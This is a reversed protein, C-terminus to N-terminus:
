TCVKDLVQRVVTDVDSRTPLEFYHETEPTSAIKRLVDKNINEGVAVTYCEIGNRKAEKTQVEILGTAITPKGDSLLIMVNDIGSRDGRQQVFIERRVTEIGRGINTDYGVESITLANSIDRESSYEDLYFKVQAEAAFTVYAIRTRGFKFDLGQIMKECFTQQIDYGQELSGSVDVLFTL